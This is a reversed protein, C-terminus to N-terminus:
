PNSSVTSICCIGGDCTLLDWPVGAWKEQSSSIGEMGIPIYRNVFLLFNFPIFISPKLESFQPLLM